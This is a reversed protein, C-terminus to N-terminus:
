NIWNMITGYLEDFYSTVAYNTAISTGAAAGVVLAGGIVLGIWGMPTAVMLLGLAYSGTNLVLTGTAASAAFGSSEIFLQKHWNGGAIRTNGIRSTFDM